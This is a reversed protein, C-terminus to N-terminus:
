CIIMCNVRPLLAAFARPPIATRAGTVRWEAGISGYSRKTRNTRSFGCAFFRIDELDLTMQLFFNRGREADLKHRERGFTLAHKAEGGDRGMRVHM